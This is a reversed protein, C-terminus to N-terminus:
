SEEGTAVARNLQAFDRVEDLGGLLDRDHSVLLLAAGTERCTERILAIAEGARRHDLNGTPEDALVLEPRNALARAVAVRQQQGTSLQRPYYNLREGLGVRELLHRARRRDQGRGFAMGVLVNELCTFAPLLNFTQFIYGVHAARHRDRASEGLDSIKVGALRIEGSDPTLIGSILHLLTTKGCGSEGALGVQACAELGFEALDIVAQVRGEPGPFSKRLDSLELLSM